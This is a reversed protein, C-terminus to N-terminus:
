SYKKFTSQYRSVPIYFMTNAPYQFCWHPRLGTLIYTTASLLNATSLTFNIFRVTVFLYVALYCNTQLHEPENRRGSNFPFCTRANHTFGTSGGCRYALAPTDSLGSHALEHSPSVGLRALGSVPRCVDNPFVAPPPTPDRGSVRSKSGVANGDRRNRMRRDHM